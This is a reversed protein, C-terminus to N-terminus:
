TTTIPPRGGATWLGLHEQDVASGAIEAVLRVDAETFSGTAIGDYTRVASERAATEDEGQVVIRAVGVYPQVIEPDSIFVAFQPM